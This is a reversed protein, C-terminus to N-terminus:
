HRDSRNRPRSDGRSRQRGHPGMNDWLMGDVSRAAAGVGNSGQENPRPEKARRPRAGQVTEEGVEGMTEVGLTSNRDRRRKPLNQRLVPEVPDVGIRREVRRREIASAVPQEHFDVRQERGHRGIRRVAVGERGRQQSRALDQAHIRFPPHREVLPQLRRESQPVLRREDPLPVLELDPLRRAEGGM